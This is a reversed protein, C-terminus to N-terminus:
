LYVSWKCEEESITTAPRNTPVVAEVARIMRNEGNWMYRFRGDFTYDYTPGKGDAYVKNTMLGTAEDYLWTTVDGSALDESRYTKM